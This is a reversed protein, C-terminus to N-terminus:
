DEWEVPVLGCRCNYDDIEEPLNNIDFIQGDLRRHSERVRIDHSTVWKIKTVGASTFTSLTLAKNFRQMQDRAFLRALNNGWSYALKMLDDFELRDAEGLVYAHIRELMRRKIDDQEWGLRQISNDLYLNKLAEMNDNFVKQKDITFTTLVQQMKDGADNFLRALYEDKEKELMKGLKERTAETKAQSVSDGEEWKHKLTNEAAAMNAQNAIKKSEDESEKRMKEFFDLLDNLTEDENKKPPGKADLTARSQLAAEKVDRLLTRALEDYYSKLAKAMKDQLSYIPRPIGMRKMRLFGERTGKSYVYGNMKFPYNNKKEDAM